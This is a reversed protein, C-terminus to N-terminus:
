IGLRIDATRGAETTDDFYRSSRFADRGIIAQSWSRHPTSRLAPRGVADRRRAVRHHLRSQRIARIANIRM